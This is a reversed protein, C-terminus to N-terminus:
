IKRTFSLGMSLSNSYDPYSYLNFANRKEKIKKQLALNLASTLLTTTGMAINIYSLNNQAKFSTYAGGGNIQPLLSTRRVNAIGIIVQGTGAILGIYSMTTNNKFRNSLNAMNIAINSGGILGSFIGYGTKIDAYNTQSSSPPGYTPQIMACEELTLGFESAWVEITPEKMDLLFDYQHKANIEEAFERGKTQEILYGVACINEGADIFCPRREGPYNRNAPFIGATWYLHLLDLIIARNAQQNSTLNTVDVIRLWQEAYSLHLQIREQENSTADPFIGLAAVYSEDHLVANVEQMKQQAIGTFSSFFLFTYFIAIKM